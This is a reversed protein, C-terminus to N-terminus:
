KGKKFFTRNHIGQFTLEKNAVTFAGYKDRSTTFSIIDGDMVMSSDVATQINNFDCGSECITWTAARAPQIGFQGITFFILLFLSLKLWAKASYTNHHQLM